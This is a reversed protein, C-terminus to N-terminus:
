TRLPERFFVRPYTFPHKPNSTPGNSLVPEPNPRPGVKFVQVLIRLEELNPMQVFGLARPEIQANIIYGDGNERMEATYAIGKTLKGFRTDLVSEMLRVNQKNLMQVPRGNPFLAYRVLGFDLQQRRLDRPDPIQLAETEIRDTRPYMSLFKRRDINQSFEGYVSFVRPSESEGGRTNGQSCLYMPHLRYEFDEPYASQPLALGIQLHDGLFPEENQVVEPDIVEIVLSLVEGDCYVQMSTEVRTSQGNEYPSLYVDLDPVQALIELPLFVAFGLIAARLDM